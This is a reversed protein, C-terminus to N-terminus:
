GPKADVTLDHKGVNKIVFAHSVQGGREVTGADWSTEKIEVTGGPGAPVAPAPAPAGPISPTITVQPMQQGAAPAAPKAPLTAAPTAPKAPAAPKPADAGMLVAASALAVAVLIPKKM